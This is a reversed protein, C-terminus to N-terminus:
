WALIKMIVYKITGDEYAVAVPSDIAFVPRGLPARKTIDMNREGEPDLIKVGFESSIGFQKKLNSYDNEYNRKLENLSKNSILRLEKVAGVNANIPSGTCASESESFEESFYVYFFTEGETSICIQNNNLRANLKDKGLDRAVVMKGRLMQHPNSFCFCNNEIKSLNTLSYYFVKTTLNNRLAKEINTLSIEQTKFSPRFFLLMFIVFSIFLTFSIIMELHGQGRKIKKNKIM